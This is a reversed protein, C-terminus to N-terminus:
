VLRLVQVPLGGNYLSAIPKWPLRPNWPRAPRPALMVVPRLDARRVLLSEFRNMLHAYHRKDGLRVGYPPNTVIPTGHPIQESFAEFDGCHWAFHDQLCGAAANAQAAALASPDIDSAFAQL